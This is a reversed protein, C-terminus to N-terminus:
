KFINQDAKKYLQAFLWGLLGGALFGTLIDLPYHVGLYIRSYGVVVAWLLLLAGWLRKRQGWFVAFFTALGFANAAHASFYGFRGGCSSKVLRVLGELEPEYCPRLRQV